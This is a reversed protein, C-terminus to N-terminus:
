GAASPLYDPVFLGDPVAAGRLVGDASLFRQLDLAARSLEAAPPTLYERNYHLDPLDLGRYLSAVEEPEVGLQEALRYSTDIPNTRWRELARFHGAIAARLAGAHWSPADTRVALVDLIRQPLRRSDFLSVLGQRRLRGLAPEYTLVADLAQGTWAAVHDGALPVVVIDAQALGGAALARGLLLRGLTTSDVGVRRGRLQALTTLDPRALLVDAGMSVNFVLVVKAPVGAEVLQLAEDLTLGAAAVEGRQFDTVSGAFGGPRVFEVAERSVWGLSGALRMFEYGPWEHLAVRLPARQACGPLGAAVAAASCAGTLFSRRTVGRTRLSAARMPSGTRCARPGEARIRLDCAAASQVIAGHDFRLM